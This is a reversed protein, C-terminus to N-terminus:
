VGSVRGDGTLGQVMFALACLFPIFFVKQFLRM